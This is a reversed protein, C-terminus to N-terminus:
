KVLLMRKTEMEEGNSKLKYFYIGSSMTSANFEVNYTGANQNQNVLVAVENGLIDYVKLEVLSSAGLHYGIITSPNFPNPYNQKLSISESSKETNATKKSEAQISNGFMEPNITYEENLNSDYKRASWHAENENWAMVILMPTGDSALEITAWKNLESEMSFHNLFDPIFAEENVKIPPRGIAAEKYKIISFGYPSADSMGAIYIHNSDNIKISSAKDDVGTTSSDSFNYKKVWNINGNGEFYKITAFDLGNSQIENDYNYVYGTTYVNNLSDLAVSTAINKKSLSGNNFKRSWQVVTHNNIDIDFLITIYNTYINNGLGFNDSIGSVVSRSKANHANSLEPLLKFDTPKESTNPINHIVVERENTFRNYNVFTIDDKNLAGQNTYGMVNVYDGQVQIDTGADDGPNSYIDQWLYNGNRDYKRMIIDTGSSAKTVYGTVFIFQVIDNDYSLDIGYAKDDGINYYISDWQFIGASNYKILIFDNSNTVPSSVYGAVYVNRQKDIVFDMGRDDGFPNPFLNDWIKNSGRFKGIYIDFTNNTYNFINGTVYLNDASDLYTKFPYDNTIQSNASSYFFLYVTILIILTKM